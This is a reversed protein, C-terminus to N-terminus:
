FLGELVLSVVLLVGFATDLKATQADADDPIKQAAMQRLLKLALPMSILVILSWPYLPGAVSMVVIGIYALIMLASYLRLGHREGIM